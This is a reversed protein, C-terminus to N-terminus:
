APSSDGPQDLQRARYLQVAYFISRMLAEENVGRSLDHMDKAIGNLMPGVAVRGAEHEVGKYMLNGSIGDPFIFVNPMKGDVPVIDEGNPGKGKGKKRFIREDRAADYQIEGYTIVDPNREIFKEYAQRTQQVGLLHDASGFTSLSLFAVVPEHGLHRVSQTTQEAIHVLDNPDPTQNVACDAFFLPEEGEKEMIFFSSILERHGAPKNVQHIAARLVDPSGHTAGAILIQANGENLENAADELEMQEIRVKVGLEDELQKLGPNGQLEIVTPDDAEPLLVTPTTVESM